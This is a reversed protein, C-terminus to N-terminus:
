GQLRGLLAIVEAYFDGQKGHRQLYAEAEARAEPKRGVDELAKMRYYYFSQPQDTGTRELRRFYPLAQGPTKAKLCGIIRTLLLDQLVEPAYGTFPDAVADSAYVATTWSKPGEAALPRAAIWRGDASVQVPVFTLDFPPLPDRGRPVAQWAGERGPELRCEQLDFAQAAHRVQTYDYTGGSTRRFDTKPAFGDLFVWRREWRICESVSGSECSRHTIELHTIGFRWIGDTCEIPQITAESGRDTDSCNDEVRRERLDPVAM